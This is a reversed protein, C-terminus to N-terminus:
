FDHKKKTEHPPFTANSFLSVVQQRESAGSHEASGVSRYSVRSSNYLLATRSISFLLLLLLLPVKILSEKESGFCM